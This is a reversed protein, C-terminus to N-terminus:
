SALGQSLAPVSVLDIVGARSARVLTAVDEPAVRVVVALRSGMSDASVQEVLVNELVLSPGVIVDAGSAPGSMPNDSPTSWVDVRDGATLDIPAHLPDVGVTVIRTPADSEDTLASRPILEGEAIPFRLQGTPREEVPLYDGSVSGLAVTVPQLHQAPAGASLDRSAQWVTVTPSDQSLLHAGLFMSGVVLILGLWLRVDTRRSTRIRSARPPAVEVASTRTTTRATARSSGGSRFKWTRLWRMRDPHM